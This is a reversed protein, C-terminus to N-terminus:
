DAKIERQAKSCMVNIKKKKQIRVINIKSFQGSKKEERKM